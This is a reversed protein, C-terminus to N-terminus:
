HSTNKKSFGIIPLSWGRYKYACLVLTLTMPKEPVINQRISTFHCNRYSPHKATKVRIM